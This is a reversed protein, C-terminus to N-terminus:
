GGRGWRPDQYSKGNKCQQREDADGLTADALGSTVQERLQQPCADQPAPDPPIASTAEYAPSLSCDDSATMSQSHCTGNKSKKKKVKVPKPTEAVGSAVQAGLQQPYVGHPTSIAPIASMGAYAPPM